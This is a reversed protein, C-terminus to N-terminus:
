VAFGHVLRFGQLAHEMGLHELGGPVPFEGQVAPVGALLPLLGQQIGIEVPSVGILLVHLDVDPAVTKVRILGAHIVDCQRAKSHALGGGLPRGGGSVLLAHDAGVPGFAPDNLVALDGIGLTGADGQAFVALWFVVILPKMVFKLVAGLGLPLADAQGLDLPPGLLIDAVVDNAPAIDVVAALGADHAMQATHEGQDLVVVDVVDVVLLVKGARLDAANFHVSGNVHDVAAVM